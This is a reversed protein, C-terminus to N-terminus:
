RRKLVSETRAARIERRIGLTFPFGVALAGLTYKAGLVFGTRHKRCLYFVYPTQVGHGVVTIGQCVRLVWFPMQSLMARGLAFYPAYAPHSAAFVQTATCYLVWPLFILVAILGPVNVSFKTVPPARVMLSSEEM